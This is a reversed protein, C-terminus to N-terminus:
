VGSVLSQNWGATDELGDLAQAIWESPVWIAGDYIFRCLVRSIVREPQSGAEIGDLLDASGVERAHQFLEGEPSMVHDVIGRVIVEADADRGNSKALRECATKMVDIIKM